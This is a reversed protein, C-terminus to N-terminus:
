GQGIGRERGGGRAKGAVKGAVLAYDGRSRLGRRVRLCLRANRLRMIRKKFTSGAISDRRFNNKRADSILRRGPLLSLVAMKYAPKM